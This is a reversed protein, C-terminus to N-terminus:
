PRPLEPGSRVHEVIVDVLKNDLRECKKTVAGMSAGKCEQRRARYTGLVTEDDRLAVRMADGLWKWEVRSYKPRPPKRTTVENGDLSVCSGNWRLADYSGGADGVVMGDKGEGRHRMVILEEDYRIVGPVTAGGSANVAEVERMKLYVRQWPSNGRFMFLAVDQNVEQCVKEVWAAPPLCEGNTPCDVPAELQTEELTSPPLPAPESADETQEADREVLPSPVEPTPPAGCASVWILVLAATGYFWAFM